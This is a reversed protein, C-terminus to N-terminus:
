AVRLMITCANNAQITITNQDWAVRRFVGYGVTVDIVYWETPTRGLMHNIKIQASATFVVPGLINPPAGRSNVASATRQQTAQISITQQDDTQEISSSLRTVPITM